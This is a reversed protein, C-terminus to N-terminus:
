SVGHTLASSRLAGVFVGIDPKAFFQEVPFPNRETPGGLVASLTEVFDDDHALFIYPKIWEELGQTVSEPVYYITPVRVIGEFAATSDTTILLMSEALLNELPEQSLHCNPYNLLDRSLTRRSAAPHVKFLILYERLDLQQFCKLLQWELEVAPQPTIPLAVVICRDGGGAGQWRDSSLHTYRFAGGVLINTKYHGRLFNAWTEGSAVIHQPMPASVEHRSVRYNLWNGPITSHQYGIRNVQPLALNLMLEWAQGEFPYVINKLEVKQALAKFGYHVLLYRKYVLDTRERQFERRVLRELLQVDSVGSMEAESYNLTLGRLCVRAVDWLPVCPSLFVIEEFNKKLRLMSNVPAGLEVVRGVDVGAGQLEREIGGLYPDNLAPLSSFVRNHVWTFLLTDVSTARPALLLIKSLLIRGVVLLFGIRHKFLRWAKTVRSRLRYRMKGVQPGGLIALLDSDDTLVLYNVPEESLEQLLKLYIYHHFIPSQSFSKSAIRTAYWALKDSQQEAVQGVFDVFNDRYKECLSSLREGVSVRNQSPLVGAYQDPLKGGGILLWRWSGYRKPDIRAGSFVTHIM